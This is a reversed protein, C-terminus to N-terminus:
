SFLKRMFRRFFGSNNMNQYNTNDQQNNLKHKLELVELADELREDSYNGTRRDYAIKVKRIIEERSPTPIIEKFIDDMFERCKNKLLIIHEEDSTLKGMYEGSNNNGDPINNDVTNSNRPNSNRFM